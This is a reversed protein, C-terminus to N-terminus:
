CWRLETKRTKGVTWLCTLTKKRATHFSQTRPTSIRAHSQLLRSTCTLSPSLSTLLGNEAFSRLGAAHRFRYFPDHRPLDGDKEGSSSKGILTVVRLGGGEGGASINAMALDWIVAHDKRNSYEPRCSPPGHAFAKKCWCVSLGSYPPRKRSRCIAM